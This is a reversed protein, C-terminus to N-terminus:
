VLRKRVVVTIIFSLLVIGIITYIINMAKSGTQPLLSNPNNSTKDYPVNPVLPNSPTFSTQNNDGNPTTTTTDPTSPNTPISPNDPIVPKKPNDPTEPTKTTNTPTHSNTITVANNSTTQNVTYGPVDDEQVTYSNNRNLNDWTYSWNNQANLVVSNGFVVGNKLLHVTVKNPRINDQNNEDNWIKTVHFNTKNDTPAVPTKPTHTNTITFDTDSNKVIKTSYDTVSEESVTYIQNKDLDTFSGKWNNDTNLTLTRDTDKGNALLHVIVEDPRLKDQNNKDAWVKNVTLTTPEKSIPTNTITAATKDDNYTISSTYGDVKVEQVSYNIKGNADTQPLNDWTHNWSTKDSLTIPAGSPNGNALLQIQVDPHSKVTDSDAWDKTVKFSTIKTDPNDLTNTITENTGTTDMADKESYDTPVSVEKASYNIEKNNDDYKPLKNTPDTPKTADEALRAGFKHSWNNSKDLTVPDGLPDNNAYLQVKVEKPRNPNDNDQWDKTVTLSTALKNYLTVTENNQDSDTEKQVSFYNSPMEQWTGNEAVTGEIFYWHGTPSVPVNKFTGSWNNSDDLTLQDITSDVDSVPNHNDDVLNVVIKDPRNPDNNDLWIKNVKIDKKISNSINTIDHNTPDTVSTFGDVPTEQVAYRYEDGNDDYKPLNNFVYSWNSDASIIQKKYPTTTNGNQILNITVSDPLKEGPLTQWLKHGMVSTIQDGTHADSGLTTYAQNISVNQLENKNSLLDGSNAYSDSKDDTNDISTYYEIIAPQSLDGLNVTFGDKNTASPKIDAFKNDADKTLTGNDYDATASYTTIPHEADNLLTQHPGITDKYVADNIKEGKYNVRVTWLITNGQEGTFTGNKNLIENTDLKQGPTIEGTTISGANNTVSAAVNWDLPVKTNESVQTLDWHTGVYVSGTVPDHKSKEAAYDNFTVTIQRNAKNLDATGIQKGGPIENVPVNHRDGTISLQKPVDLTMTDGSNVGGSPTSFEWYATIDEYQGFSAQPQGDSNQLQVKTVLQTGWDKPAATEDSSQNNNTTETTTSPTGEAANVVNTSSTMFISLVIILLSFINNGKKFM